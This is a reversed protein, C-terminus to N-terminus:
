FLISYKIKSKIPILLEKKDGANRVFAKEGDANDIKLYYSKDDLLYTGNGMDEITKCAALRVFLDNSPNAVSIERSIGQRNELVQTADSISSGYIHYRFIPRDKEDLEYGKPRFATGTTDTKWPADAASFTNM